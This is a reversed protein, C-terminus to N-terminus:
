SAMQELQWPERLDLAQLAPAWISELFRPIPGWRAPPFNPRRLLSRCAFRTSPCAPQQNSRRCNLGRSPSEQVAEILLDGQVVPLALELEGLLFETESQLVQFRGLRLRSLQGGM